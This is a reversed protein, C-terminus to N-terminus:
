CDKLNSNCGPAYFNSGRQLMFGATDKAGDPNKVTIKFAGFPLGPPLKGELKNSSVFSINSLWYDRFYSPNPELTEIDYPGEIAISAGKKFKTGNITMINEGPTSYYSYSVYTPSINQITITYDPTPTPTQIVPISTSSDKKLGNNLYPKWLLATALIVIGVLILWKPFTKQKQTKRKAM